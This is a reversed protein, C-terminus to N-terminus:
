IKNWANAHVSGMFTGTVDCKYCPSFNRNANYLNKRALNFKQNLWIDIFTENNLNGVVLKKGWDHSCILIEGTYDMFFTYHPYYCSKKKPEKLSPIVYEAKDMMGARNSLTIGFSKSEPLYRHRVKFQDESLDSNQLLKEMKDTEKKGDYISVLLTSLGSKFLKKIRQENLADGNTVMEIKAKPLNNRVISILFYINKDVMPEVFGSFLFIGSYDYVSLEKSIKNILDESVFEKIDLFNPASRPCFSCKRNCTGSESIEVISPLPINNKYYQINKTLNNKRKILPDIFKKKM